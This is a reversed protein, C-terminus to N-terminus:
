KGTRGVLYDVSVDFCDALRILLDINPERKGSEYNGIAAHTVELKEAVEKQKLGREIRLEKIRQGLVRNVLRKGMLTLVKRSESV